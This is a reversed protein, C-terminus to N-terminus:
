KHATAALLLVPAMILAILGFLVFVNLSDAEKRAVRVTMWTTYSMLLGIGPKLVILPQIDIPLTAPQGVLWNWTGSITSFVAYMFISIVPVIWAQWRGGWRDPRGTIGFHAPIREPLTDWARLLILLPALAFVLAAIELPWRLAVIWSQIGM